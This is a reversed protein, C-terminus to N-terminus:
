VGSIDVSRCGVECEKSACPLGAEHPPKCAARICRSQVLQAEGQIESHFVAALLSELNYTGWRCRRDLRPLVRCHIQESRGDVL